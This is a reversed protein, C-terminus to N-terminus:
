NQNVKKVLKFNGFDFYVPQYAKIHMDLGFFLFSSRYNCDEHLYAIGRAAGAVIKIRNQWELVPQGEGAFELKM